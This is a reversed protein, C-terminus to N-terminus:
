SIIVEHFSVDLDFISPQISIKKLRRKLDVLVASSAIM